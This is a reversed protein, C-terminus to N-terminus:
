INFRLAEVVALRSARRAPTIAALLTALWGTLVGTWIVSPIIRIHATYGSNSNPPPPMPIGIHSILWALALGLLLGAGAGLIGLIVNELLILKFIYGRRHGLAMLTGFEGRREYVVMAVANAVSLLVLILVIIQLVGFQRRYLDVTKQYFDALEHWTYVEFAEGSLLRKIGAAVADTAETENLSVVLSNVGQTALLQQAGILSIRVARNDYEKSFSQFVGVVEFEMSNLAGGATNVLLTIFDGPILGLAQAVGQGILVGFEDTDALQRGALMTMASGLRAEKSAQVGEGVIPLDAAGNNALGSFNVRMMVDAVGSLARLKDVTLRPKDILYRFPERQGSEYYGSRYVQIHGLQSHITHERLQYFIDEVFGGSVLLGTVGIIIAALTLGTRVRHRFISRFALKLM